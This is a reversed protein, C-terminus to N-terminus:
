GRREDGADGGLDGEGSRVGSRRPDGGLGCRAGLDGGM